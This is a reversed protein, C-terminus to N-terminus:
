GHYPTRLHQDNLKDLCKQDLTKENWMKELEKELREAYFKKLVKMLDHLEEESNTGAFSKLVLMQAPTIKELTLENQM